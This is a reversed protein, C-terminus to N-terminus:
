TKIVRPKENLLTTYIPKFHEHMRGLCYRVSKERLDEKEKLAAEKRGNWISTKTKMKSKQGEWYRRLDGGSYHQIYSARDICTNNNWKKHDLLGIFEMNRGYHIFHGNEYATQSEKPVDIDANELLHELFTVVEIDNSAFIVGSNVRGSKGPAMFMGGDALISLFDPAHPRIECDADIFAVRRAGARLLSCLIEVKLWACQKATLEWPVDSICWHKYGYRLCYRQQSSICEAFKEDFGNLGITFCVVQGCLSRAGLEKQPALTAQSHDGKRHAGEGGARQYCDIHRGAVHAWSMERARYWEAQERRAMMTEEDATLSAELADQASKVDGSRYTMGGAQRAIDGMGGEDPVVVHVGFTLALPVVGSNMRGKRPVLVVDAVEFLPAIHEDPIRHHLRVMANPYRDEDGALVNKPIASRSPMGAFVLKSNPVRAEEFARRAIREEDATRLAGFVLVVRFEQLKHLDVITRDPYVKRYYQYDGHPVVRHEARRCWSFTRWRNWFGDRSARELHIFLDTNSYVLDFIRPGMDGFKPHPDYNHITTAIVSNEKHEQLRLDAKALEREAPKEWGFLAEPWQFHVVDWVPENWYFQEVGYGVLDVSTRGQLAEILQMLYPNSPRRTELECPFLIKM